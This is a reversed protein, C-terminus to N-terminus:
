DLPPLFEVNVARPMPLPPTHITTLGYPALLIPFGQIRLRQLGLAEALREGRWVIVIADHSGDVVV